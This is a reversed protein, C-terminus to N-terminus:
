VSDMNMDVIMVNLNGCQLAVVVHTAHGLVCFIYIYICSYICIKYIVDKNKDEADAGANLLLDVIKLYGKRVAIMLATDGGQCLYLCM